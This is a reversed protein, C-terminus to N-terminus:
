PTKKAGKAQQRKLKRWRAVNRNHEALTRAFVHGGSGDAVFYLEKTQDPNLVAEIAARGPNAIPGPPLGDIQYTNYATPTDLDKRSLPRGLPQRGGTIGYVVTPDSQLRMGRRLRNLFVAAVRPREAAVGTEKEVISALILAEQPSTLPSPRHRGSWLENLVDTMAKRMRGLLARRSDGHAFHYTEPLLSGETSLPGPEGKLGDAAAVQVAVEAVTRGEPVTLRRTVTEGSQLLRIADRPSIAAAFAFEGARLPKPEAWLELGLRFLRADTIIGTEHLRRAISAGGSGAPIVLTREQALPGPRTFQDWAWFAAGAVGAALLLALAVLAAIVRRM